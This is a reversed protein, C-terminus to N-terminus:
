GKMRCCPVVGQHNLAFTGAVNAGYDVGHSGHNSGFVGLQKTVNIHGVKAVLTVSLEFAHQLVQRRKDLEKAVDQERIIGALGGVLSHANHHHTYLDDLSADAM